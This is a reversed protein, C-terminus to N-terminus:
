TISVMKSKSKSIPFYVTFTSGKPKRLVYEISGKHNEIIEKAISLGLGAGGESRRRSKDARYFPEFIYPIDEEKIGIGTDSISIKYQNNEIGQSVLVEGNEVNYKIANEILNSLVHKILVGNGRIHFNGKNYEFKINKSSLSFHLENKIEEVIIDLDVLDMSQNINSSHMLMLDDVLKIMRENQKKIVEIIEVYDEKTSEDYIQLFEINTKIVTLPTKLEHSAAASFRKERDFSYQLRDLLLNFSNALSDLEDGTNSKEIRKSLNNRDIGSIEESWERIPKLSLKAALYTLCSGILILIIMFIISTITFENIYIVVGEESNISNILEQSYIGSQGDVYMKEFPKIINILANIISFITAGVSILILLISTIIMLRTQLSFKRKM